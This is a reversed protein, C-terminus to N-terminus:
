LKAKLICFVNNQLNTNEFTKENQHKCAFKSVLLNNSLMNGHKRNDQLNKDAFVVDLVNGHKENKTLFTHQM